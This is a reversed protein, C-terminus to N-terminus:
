FVSLRQVTNETNGLRAVGSLCVQRSICSKRSAKKKVEALAGKLESSKEAVELAARLLRPTEPRPPAPAPAPAPPPTEPKPPPKKGKNLM